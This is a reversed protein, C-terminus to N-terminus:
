FVDRRKKKLNDISSLFNIGNWFIKKESFVSYEFKEYSDHYNLRHSSYSYGLTIFEAGLPGLAQRVLRKLFFTESGM